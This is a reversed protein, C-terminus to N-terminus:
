IRDSSNSFGVDITHTGIDGIYLTATSNSAVVTSTFDVNNYTDNVFLNRALEITNWGQRMSMSVNGRNSGGIYITISVNLIGGGSNDVVFVSASARIDSFSSLICMKYPSFGAFRRGVLTTTVSSSSSTELKRVYAPGYSGDVDRSKVRFVNADVDSGSINTGYITGGIINYGKPNDGNFNPLGNSSLMFGQVNNLDNANFNGSVFSGGYIEGGIIKAGVINATEPNVSSDLLFGTINPYEGNIPTGPNYNASKIFGDIMLDSNMTIRSSGTTDTILEFPTATNGSDKIRFVDANIQFNSPENSGDAFSWGTISDGDVILKSAVAATGSLQLNEQEIWGLAVGTYVEIKNYGATGAYIQVNHIEGDANKIRTLRVMSVKLQPEYVIPSGGGAIDQYSYVVFNGAFVDELTDIRISLNKDEIYEWTYPNSDNGTFNVNNDGIVTGAILTRMITGNYWMDGVCNSTAYVQGTTPDIPCTPQSVGNTMKVKGDAIGKADLALQYAAASQTDIIEKWGYGNADVLCSGIDATYKGFKWSRLFDKQAPNVPNDEYLVYTDATKQALVGTAKWTAYPEQTEVLCGNGDVPGNAGEDVQNYFLTEIVGDIQQELDSISGFADNIRDEQSSYSAVLTSIVSGQSNLDNTTATIKEDFWAGGDGDNQWAAVTQRSIATAGDSDVKVVDLHQVGATNSDTSIKLASIDYATKSNEDAIIGFQKTVGDEFGDFRDELDSVEDALDSTDIATDLLDQFWTPIDTSRQVLYVDDSAFTYANVHIEVEISQVLVGEVISIGSEVDVTDNITTTTTSTCVEVDGGKAAPPITEFLSELGDPLLYQSGAV